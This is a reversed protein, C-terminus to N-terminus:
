DKLPPNYYRGIFQLFSQIPHYEPSEWHQSKLDLAIGGKRISFMNIYIFLVIQFFFAVTILRKYKTKLLLVLYLVLLLTTVAKVAVFLPAGGKSLLWLGVPNQELDLITDRYVWTMTNDYASIVGIVFIMMLYLLNQKNTKM